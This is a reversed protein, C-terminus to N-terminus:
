AGATWEVLTFPGSWGCIANNSTNGQTDLRRAGPSLQPTPLDACFLNFQCSGGVTIGLGTVSSTIINPRHTTVTISNSGAYNVQTVVTFPYPKTAIQLLDGPRFVAQGVALGLASVGNITLQDGVFSAVTLGTPTALSDGQYRWMWSLKPNNAFSVVSPQYRDTNTLAEYMGRVDQWPLGPVTITFNWPNKTPTLNTRPMQSRTFQIGVLKRRDIDMGSSYNIVQQISM